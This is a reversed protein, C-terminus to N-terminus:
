LMPPDLLIREMVAASFRLSHKELCASKWDTWQTMKTPSSVYRNRAAVSIDIDLLAINSKAIVFATNIDHFRQWASRCSPYCVVVSVAASSAHVAIQNNAVIAAKCIDHSNIKNYPSAAAVSKEAACNRRQRTLRWGNEIFYGVFVVSWKYWAARQNRFCRALLQM